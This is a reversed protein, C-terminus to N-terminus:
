AIGWGSEKGGFTNHRGSKLHLKLTYGRPDGSTEVTAGYHDAIAQARTRARDDARERSREDEEDWSALWRGDLYERKRGEGNCLAVARRAVGSGIRLLDAANKAIVHPGPVAYYTPRLEASSQIFHAETALLAALEALHLGRNPHNPM